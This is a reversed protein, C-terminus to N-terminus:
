NGTQTTQVSLHGELPLTRGQEFTIKATENIYIKGVYETMQTIKEECSAWFLCNQARARVYACAAVRFPAHFHQKVGM